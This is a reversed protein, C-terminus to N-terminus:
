TGNKEKSYGGLPVPIKSTIAVTYLLLIVASTRPVFWRVRMQFSKQRDVSTREQAFEDLTSM